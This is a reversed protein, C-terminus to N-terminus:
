ILGVIGALVLAVGGTSAFVLATEREEANNGTAFRWGALLFGVVAVLVLLLM